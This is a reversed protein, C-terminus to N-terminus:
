SAVVILMMSESACAMGMKKENVESWVIWTGENLM